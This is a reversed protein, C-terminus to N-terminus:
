LATTFTIKDENTKEESRSSITLLLNRVGEGKQSVSSRLSDAVTRALLCNAFLGAQGEQGSALLRDERHYGVASALGVRGDWIRRIAVRIGVLCIALGARVLGMAM